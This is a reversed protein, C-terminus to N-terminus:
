RRRRVVAAADLAQRTMPDLGDLYLETARSSRRVTVAEINV